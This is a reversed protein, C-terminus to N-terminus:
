GPLGAELFRKPLGGPHCGPSRCRIGENDHMKSCTGEVSKKAHLWTQMGYQCAKPPYHSPMAQKGWFLGNNVRDNWGNNAQGLRAVTPKTIGAM